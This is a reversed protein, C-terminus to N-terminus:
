LICLCMFKTQMNDFYWRHIRLSYMCAFIWCICLTAHSLHAHVEKRLAAVEAMYQDVLESQQQAQECSHIVVIDGVTTHTLFTVYM